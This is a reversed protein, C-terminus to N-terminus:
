SVGSGRCRVFGIAGPPALRGQADVIDVAMGPAARGVTEKRSEIDAPRLATIFGTAANGYVEYVNPSILSKIREKEDPYLPAAGIMLGRAKPLLPEGGGAKALLERTIPPTLLFVSDDWKNIAEVVADISPLLGLLALPGGICIQNAIFFFFGSFSMEGLVLLTPPREADLLEPFLAAASRYREWWERQSTVVGKPQGTSGSTLSFLLLNDSPGNYRADGTKTEIAAKWAADLAHVTVGDPAEFGPITIARRAGFLAFPDTQMPRRLPTDIPVAGIRLLAFVLVLHAINVPLSVVVLEGPKVGLDRLHVAARGVLTAFQLWTVTAGGEHIAPAQPKQRAYFFIPDSLNNFIPAM